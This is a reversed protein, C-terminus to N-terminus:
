FTSISLAPSHIGALTRSDTRQNVYSSRFIGTPAPAIIPMTITKGSKAGKMKVFCIEDGSLTNFMRGLTIRNVFIHTRSMIKMIWRPPNFENM